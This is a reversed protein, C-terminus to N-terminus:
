DTIGQRDKFLDNLGSNTKWETVLEPFFSKYMETFQQVLDFLNEFVVDDLVMNPQSFYHQKLNAKLVDMNQVNGQFLNFFTDAFFSRLHKLSLNAFLLETHTLQIGYLSWNWMNQRTGRFLQSFNSRRDRPVDVASTQIHVPHEFLFTAIDVVTHKKPDSDPIVWVIINNVSNKFGLTLTCLFWTFVDTRRRANQWQYKSGAIAGARRLLPTVAPPGTRNQRGLAGYTQQWEPNQTTRERAQLTKESPTLNQRRELQEDTLCASSFANLDTSLKKWSYRFLHILGHEYQHLLVRNPADDLGGDFRPQIHHLVRYCTDNLESRGKTKEELQRLYDVFLDHVKESNQNYFDYNLFKEKQENTM